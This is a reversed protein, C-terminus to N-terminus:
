ERKKTLEVNIDEGMANVITKMEGNTNDLSVKIEDGMVPMQSFYHNEDVQKVDLEYTMHGFDVSAITKNEVNKFEITGSQFGIPASPANFNYKGTLNDAWISCTMLFALTAFAIKKM